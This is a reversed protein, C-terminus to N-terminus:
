SRRAIKQLLMLVGDVPIAAIERTVMYVHKALGSARAASDIPASETPIGLMRFLMRCRRQHYRDTCVFVRGVDKRSRLISACNCVSAITNRAQTECVIQEARIGADLLMSRM